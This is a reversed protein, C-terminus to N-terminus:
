NPLPGVNKYSRGNKIKCVTQACIGYQKGIDRYRGGASRVERAQKASLKADPRDPGQPHIGTEFGHRANRSRNCWELNEVANNRKNGDLHNVEPLNEPNNIFAEAVLRHVMKYSCEGMPNRLGVFEYGGPKVGSRLRIVRRKLSSYVDGRRSVFYEPFGVIARCGSRILFGIDYDRQFERKARIRAYRNANGVKSM